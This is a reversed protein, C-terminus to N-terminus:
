RALSRRTAEALAGVIITGVLGELYTHVYTAGFLLCRGVDVGVRGRNGGAEDGLVAHVGLVM